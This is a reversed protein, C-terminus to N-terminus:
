DDSRMRGKQDRPHRFYKRIWRVPHELQVVIATGGWFIVAGAPLLAAALDVALFIGSVYRITRVIEGITQWVEVISVVILMAVTFNMLILAIPAV